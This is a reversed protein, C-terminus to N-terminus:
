MKFNSHSPIILTYKWFIYGIPRYKTPYILNQDSFNAFGCNFFQFIDFISKILFHIRLIYWPSNWNLFMGCCRFNENKITLIWRIFFEDLIFKKFFRIKKVKKLKGIYSLTIRLLQDKSCFPVLNGQFVIKKVLSSIGVASANRM